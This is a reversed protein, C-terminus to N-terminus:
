KADDGRLQKIMNKKARGAVKREFFATNRDGEKLWLIRSRQLWMMEKHYLLEDMHTTIKKIEEHNTDQNQSSLEEVKTRLANLEKTVVGFKDLSWRKLRTWVHKLRGAMDRLSQIEEDQQWAEQIEVPLSDEREWMIEYRFIRQRPQPNEERKLNLFV